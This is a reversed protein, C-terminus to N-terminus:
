TLLTKSAHSLPLTHTGMWSGGGEEEYIVAEAFCPVHLRVDTQQRGREIEMGLGGGEGERGGGGKGGRRRQSEGYRRLGNQSLTTSRLPSTIQASFLLLENVL